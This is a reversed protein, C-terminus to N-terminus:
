PRVELREVRVAEAGAALRYLAGDPTLYLEVSPRVLPPDPLATRAVLSGSPEIVLLERDVAARGRERFREVVVFARGRRDVGVLRLSALPGGISVAVRREGGGDVFVVEGSEGSTKVAHTESPVGGGSTAPRPGLAGVVTVTPRGSADVRVAFVARRATDALLITGDDRVVIANPGLPEHGDGGPDLGLTEAGEGYPLDLELTTVLRAAAGTDRLVTADV